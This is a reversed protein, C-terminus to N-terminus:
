CKRFVKTDGSFKLVKSTIDDDDLDNIYILFLLSILVISPSWILLLATLMAWVYSLWRGDRNNHYWTPKAHLSSVYEVWTCIHLAHVNQMLTDTMSLFDRQYVTMDSAEMQTSLNIFLKELDVDEELAAHDVAHCQQSFTMNRLIDLNETTEDVLDPTLGM